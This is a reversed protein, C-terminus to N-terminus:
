EGAAFRPGIAIVWGAAALIVLLLLVWIARIRRELLCVASDRRMVRGGGCEEAWQERGDGLYREPSPKM